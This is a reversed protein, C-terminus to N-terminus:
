KEKRGVFFNYIFAIIFGGIAGDLFGWLGGILGGVFGPSFGIYLTSIISVFETGWGLPALWGIFIMYVGWSIGLGLAFARVNIKGMINNIILLRSNCFLIRNRLELKNM